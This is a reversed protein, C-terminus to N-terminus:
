QEVLRNIGALLAPIEDVRGFANLHKKDDLVCVFPLSSIKLQQAVASRMGLPEVCYTGPPAASAKIAPPGAKAKAAASAAKPPPTWAGLSVYVWNTKAPANKQHAYLGPPGAPMRVGDWFVVVTRAGTAGSALAALRTARGETTTLPFDLPKRMLNARDFVRQAASKVHAPAPMQLIRRAVDRGHDCQTQQAVTLYNAYVGPFHGFEARLRDALGEAEFPASLWSKGGLKRGVLHREVAHAVDYRDAVPNAKNGRFDGATKLAATEHATDNDAIGGLAALAELKRAAPAQAHTPFRTYFDKAAAAAQRSAQVSAAKRTAEQAPTARAPLAASATTGTPVAPNRLAVVAAWAHDAAADAAKGAPTAGSQGPPTGASGPQAIVSACGFLFSGFLSAAFRSKM